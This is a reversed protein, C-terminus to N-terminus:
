RGLFRRPKTGASTPPKKMLVSRRKPEGLAVGWSRTKIPGRFNM